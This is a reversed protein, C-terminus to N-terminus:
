HQRDGPQRECGAGAVGLGGAGRQRAQRVHCPHVPARQLPSMADVSVGDRYEVIRGPLPEDHLLVAPADGYVGGGHIRSESRALANVDRAEGGELPVTRHDHQGADSTQGAAGLARPRARGVAQLDQRLLAELAQFQPHAHPADVLDVALVQAEVRGDISARDLADDHVDGVRGQQAVAVGDDNAPRHLRYLGVTASRSTPADVELALAGELPDTARRRRRRRCRAPDSRARCGQRPQQRDLHQRGAFGGTAKRDVHAAHDRTGRRPGAAARLLDDQLVRVAAQVCRGVARRFGRREPRQDLEFTSRSRARESRDDDVRAEAHEALCRQRWREDGGIEVGSERRAGFVGPADGLPHQPRIGRLEDDGGGGALQRQEEEGAVCRRQLAQPIGLDLDGPYERDDMPSPADDAVPEEHLMRVADHHRARRRLRRRDPRDGLEERVPRGPPGQVADRYAAHDRTDEVGIPHIDVVARCAHEELRIAVGRPDAADDRRRAEQGPAAGLMPEGARAQPVGSLCGASRSRGRQERDVLDGTAIV